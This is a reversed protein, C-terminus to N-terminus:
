APRPSSMGGRPATLWRVAADLDPHRFGFGSEELVKPMVRQSALVEDAFEGLVLRLGFGPAPVLSPRHLARAVARAIDGQRQPSPATLNVAGRLDPSRLLFGLAAM